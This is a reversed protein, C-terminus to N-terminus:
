RLTLRSTNWTPGRTRIGFTMARLAAAAYRIVAEQLEDDGAWRRHGRV